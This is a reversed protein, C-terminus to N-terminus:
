DDSGGTVEGLWRTLNDIEFHIHDGSHDLQGWQNATNLWITAMGMKHAPVLNRAMDDVMVADSAAFNFHAVLRDYAPQHPKPIYGARAVDFIGEILHDIALHALIREAHKTSANTFVFCRADLASIHEALRPDPAIGSIDVDHVYDSFAEPDVDHCDMLGSLTTGYRVFLDKQVRRAEVPDVGLLGGIFRGMLVDIQPFLDCDAPYLTNDLDFIWVPRDLLYRATSQDNTSLAKADM